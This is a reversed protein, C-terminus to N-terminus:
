LKFFIKKKFLWYCLYCEAFLTVLASLVAQIKEPMGLLGTFGKLFIAIFGDLWHYGVTEFFLYIFISNMGVVVFIWAYRNIKKVDTMWYLLALFLLVWGGSALVFSSTSIRKIIPTISAIDLGYGIILGCIGALVLKRIKNAATTRSILLKGALVGWITHAATPIANIAVWGNQNLKGMIVMDIFSGFNKGIVFPQDYGPIRVYRYLIETIILLGLSFILQFTSSKRIIFYAILTTISLQTLVNWLEWVLKGKDVCHIMVGLLFLKFCRTAIHKFNEQWSIGKQLKNHYSIYLASGAMLMFAPQILDWLHLGNWPHHQFLLDALYASTGNPQLDRLSVYVLCSEGALLVMVMGRMIDLSLVRNKPQTINM